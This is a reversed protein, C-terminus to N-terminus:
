RERHNISLKYDTVRQCNQLELVNGAAEADRRLAARETIDWAQFRASVDAGEKIQKALLYYRGPALSKFNFGGDAGVNAQAYRLPDDAAEKEAPILCARIKGAPKGGQGAILRGKVGAAGEAITVTIGTLKEGQKLTVGNRAINVPAPAATRRAGPASPKSGMSIARVYWNEDPLQAIVRHRGAELNRLTFEGLPTPAAPRTPALRSALTAARPQAEDREAALMVEEVSSARPKQCTAAKKEVVVRGGILGLAVVTLEVGGVGAGRVSVRRPASIADSEAGLGGRRAVIEYEGDPIGHLAFGRSAVRNPRGRNMPGADMQVTTAVVADSGAVSLVIQTPSFSNDGAKAIVKGSVVRGRDGRYRIDIGTIEEGARVAVPTAADRSSSPYYTPADESFPSLPNPGPGARGGAQLAYAGPVLGYIRYVGLDDTRWNRNFSQFVVQNDEEGDLGGVRIANVSVGTLPEGVANTVKGTIVGGRVLTINAMDGVHYVGMSEEDDIPPQTIYGPASASIVYSAPALGEFEFLGDDDTNTQARQSGQRRAAARGIPTAIVPINAMPQGDDGAVRGKISGPKLEKQEKAPDSAGPASPQQAAVSLSFILLTIVFRPVVASACLFRLERLSFFQHKKSM